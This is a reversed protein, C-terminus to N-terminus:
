CHWLDTWHIRDVRTILQQNRPNTPYLPYIASWQTVLYTLQDRVTLKKMEYCSRQANARITDERPNSVYISIIYRSNSLTNRLTNYIDLVCLLQKLVWMNCRNDIAVIMVALSLFITKYIANFWNYIQKIVNM